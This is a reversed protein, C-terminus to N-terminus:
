EIQVVFSVDILHLKNEHVTEFDKIVAGTADHIMLNLKVPEGPKVAVPDTTVM